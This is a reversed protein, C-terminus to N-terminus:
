LLWGRVTLDVTTWAVNSLKYEIKRDVGIKIFPDHYIASFAVQVFLTASNTENVNGIERLRLSVGIAGHILQMALHVASAGAPVIGSLDLEHYAGDATLTIKTFDAAAPDGRDIYVPPIGIAEIVLDILWQM